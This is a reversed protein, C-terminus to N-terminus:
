CAHITATLLTFIPTNDQVEQTVCLGATPTAGECESKRQIHPGYWTRVKSRPISACAECRLENKDFHKFPGVLWTYSRDRVRSELESGPFDMHELPCPITSHCGAVQKLLLKLGTEEDPLRVHGLACVLFAVSHCFKIATLQLDKSMSRHDIWGLWWESAGENILEWDRADKIGVSPPRAGRSSGVLTSRVRRGSLRRSRM